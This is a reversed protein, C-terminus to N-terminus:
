FEINKRTAVECVFATPDEVKAKDNWDLNLDTITREITPFNTLAFFAILGLAIGLYYQDGTTFYIIIAFLTPLELIASRILLATRYANLKDSLPVKNKANEILYKVVFYSGLLCVLALAPVIYEFLGGVNGSPKAEKNFGNDQHLYFSIGAFFVQGFLLAAYFIKLFLFYQKSTQQTKM